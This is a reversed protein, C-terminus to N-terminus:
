VGRARLFQLSSIKHFRGCIFVIVCCPSFLFKTLSTINLEGTICLKIEKKKYMCFIKYLQLNKKCLSNFIYYYRTDNFYRNVNVNVYM